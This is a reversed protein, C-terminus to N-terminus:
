ASLETHAARDLIMQCIDGVAISAPSDEPLDWVSKGSIDFQAVNSDYPVFAALTTDNERATKELVPKTEDTIRNAVILVEGFEVHLEKSLGQVRMATLLGNKTADTVALMVDVDRTTRRSLHELGAECDIVVFDYNNAWVDMGQRLIHNVACYCGEGESRGMVVMDFDPAEKMMQNLALEFAKLKDMDGSGRSYTPAQAIAERADGINRSVDVGLAQPLNSDPDADIALVDGMRSFCRVLLAALNTKGVGGKGSIAITFGKNTQM